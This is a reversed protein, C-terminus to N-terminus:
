SFGISRLHVRHVGLRQNSELSFIEEDDRKGGHVPCNYRVLKNPQTDSPTPREFLKFSLHGHTCLPIRTHTCALAPRSAM